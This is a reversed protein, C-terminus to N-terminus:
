LSHVRRQQDTDRSPQSANPPIAIALSAISRQNRAAVSGDTRKVLPSTLWAAAPPTMGPPETSTGNNTSVTTAAAGNALAAIVGICAAANSIPPWPNSCAANCMSPSLAAVTVVVM